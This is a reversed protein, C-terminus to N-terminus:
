PKTAIFTIHPYWFMLRNSKHTIDFGIRKLIAEIVLGKLEHGTNGSLILDHLKNALFLLNDADIDKLILRSGKRMKEFVQMLFDNQQAVPIHHLIDIMFVTDFENLNDPLSMGDYVQFNIETEATYKQLLQNANRVLRPDIEIGSIAKPKTFEAALLAFQGSGCGIDMIKEGDRIYGLLADFPCIYPRYVIKLKDVFSATVNQIKLFNVLTKTQIIRM